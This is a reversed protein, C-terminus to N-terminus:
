ISVSISRPGHENGEMRATARLTDRRSPAELITSSFSSVARSGAKSGIMVRPATLSLKSIVAPLDTLWPDFRAELTASSANVSVIEIEDTGAADAVETPSVDTGAARTRCLGTLGYRLFKM